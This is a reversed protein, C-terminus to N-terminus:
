SKRAMSLLPGAACTEAAAIADFAHEHATAKIKTQLNLTRKHRRRIADQIEEKSATRKNCLAIKVEQPTAQFIPVQLEEALAVLVGWTMAMKAAASSNRPFSMAEACIAITGSVDVLKRLFRTIETARRVNDEITLARQKKLAKKTEFVGMSEVNLSGRAGVDLVAWGISAFGPDIGVIRQAAKADCVDNDTEICMQLQSSIPRHCRRCVGRDLIRAVAKGPVMPAIPHAQMYSVSGVAEGRPKPLEAIVESPHASPLEKNVKQRKARKAKPTAPETERSTDEPRAPPQVPDGCRLCRGDEPVHGKEHCKLRVLSVFREPQM